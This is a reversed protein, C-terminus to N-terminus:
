DDGLPPPASPLTIIVGFGRREGDALGDGLKLLGGSERVLEAVIPLGLGTGETNQQSPSRWFRDLAAEREEKPLGVGNDLVGIRVQEGDEARVEIRTGGSLRLANSVLEDLISGLGGAPAHAWLHDPLDTTVEIGRSEGLANWRAVRTDVLGAVEVVESGTVSELRTAALLSNLMRNMATAEDIAIAHAERADAGKLYPALNEVSLRLSALPNRLQHSAESVFSRQRELARRVVGVMTNFSDTLRRLEPPGSEADVHVDLDGSTVKTTAADLRHIPQLVWRSLPLSAMVLLGLPVVSFLTMWGWTTLIRAGLVDTPSVLVVAGAVESDRGIPEAIVLPDSRWPWVTTPPEPREGALAVSIVSDMGVDAVLERMRPREGSGAVVDGDPAVLVVPIGYLQEYRSMEQTLANSREAELATGALSAFRGADGLRDVYVAQTQQQAIVTAIPVLVAGVLVFAIPLLITLLRRLM